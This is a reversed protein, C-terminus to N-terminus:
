NDIPFIADPGKTLDNYIEQNVALFSRDRYDYTTKGINVVIGGAEEVLLSGPAFDYDQGYPDVMVRGDLKGSAVMAFEWGASISKVISVRQRMHMFLDKNQQEEMKTEFGLYSDRLPRNSVHIPENNAFAGHGRTAHYAIDNAFDYVVSFIVRQREILALMVTSFPLGHIFNGTGDIPDCLWFLDSDRSGGFEEGAFPISPFNTALSKKLYDEVKLDLETVVSDGKENKRANEKITGWHPLLMERTARVIPLVVESYNNEM